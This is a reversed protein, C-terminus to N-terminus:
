WWGVLGLGHETCVCLFRYLNEVEDLYEGMRDRMFDVREPPIWEQYLSEDTAAEFIHNYVKGRFSGDNGNGSFMGGCLHINADMFAQKQEDTLSDQGHPSAFTDLGM